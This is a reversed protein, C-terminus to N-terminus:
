LFLLVSDTLESLPALEMNRMNRMSRMKAHVRRAIKRPAPMCALVWFCLARARAFCLCGNLDCSIRLMRGGMNCVELVAEGHEDDEDNAEEEEDEEDEHGEESGKADANRV